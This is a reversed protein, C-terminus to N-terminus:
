NSSGDEMHKSYVYWVIPSAVDLLLTNLFYLTFIVFALLKAVCMFNSSTGRQEAQYDQSLKNFNRILAIFVVLLLMEFLFKPVMLALYIIEENEDLESLKKVTYFTWIYATYGIFYSGIIPNQCNSIRRAWRAKWTPTSQLAMSMKYYVSLMRCVLFAYIIM